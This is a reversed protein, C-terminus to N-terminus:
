VFTNAKRLMQKERDSPFEPVACFPRRDDNRMTDNRVAQVSPQVWLYKIVTQASVMVISKQEGELIRM